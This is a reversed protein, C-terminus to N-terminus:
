TPPRTMVVRRRWPAGAMAGQDFAEQDLSLLHERDIVCANKANSMPRAQSASAGSLATALAVPLGLARWTAIRCVLGSM